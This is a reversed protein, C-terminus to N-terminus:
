RLLRRCPVGLSLILHEVGGPASEGPAALVAQPVAPAM